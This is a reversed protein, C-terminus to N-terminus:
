CRRVKFDFVLSLESFLGDVVNSWRLHNVDPVVYNFNFIDSRCTIDDIYMFVGSTRDQFDRVWPYNTTIVGLGLGCYEIVKTSDQINLPFVDPMFNLGFKSRRVIHLAESPDVKGFNEVLPHDFTQSVGVLAVRVDCDVIKKIADFLGERYSGCYVVDFPKAEDDLKDPHDPHDPHDNFGMGRLSINGEDSFWMKRRVFDNLFIYYNSRVNFIKKALDKVRGLRGVTLSHYEGIIYRPYKNWFPHFGHFLVVADYEMIKTDGPSLIDSEVGNGRFMDRYAYAEPLFAKDSKEIAVSRVVLKAM